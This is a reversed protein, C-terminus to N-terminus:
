RREFRLRLPARPRLTIRALPQPPAAGPLTALRFRQLLLAAVVTMELTAFHQGVCVRPGLGFPLYAGRPPPAADPLFREPRFHVAQPFWREDRHMVWPTVRVLTRAPLRFGGAHITTLTRRTMLIAAPPYLRLAEKLTAALWPLRPLDTAAPARGVLARDVEDAARQADAPHSALLWSWWTLATATTEHGAQFTVMCQDFVEQASLAAGSNEDRLSQLQALLHTTAAPRLPAEIHRRILDRMRRLARRKSGSGPLPLWVPLNFPLFMQRYGADSLCQVARALAATDGGAPVGFLTRLIVDMTLHSYLREVDVVGAAADVLVADLAATAATAMLAAYGEVRKPTFAQVLTRRQRQWTPGETVLVSQGMLEAFVAPGREWRISADAQDVLLERVVAPDFVDVSREHAIRMRVLDGYERKLRECFGLYDRQLAALLPLGWWRRTPGPLDDFSRTPPPAVASPTAASDM